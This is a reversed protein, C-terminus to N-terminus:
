RMHYTQADTTSAYTHSLVICNRSTDDKGSPACSKPSLHNLAVHYTHYPHKLGTHLESVVGQRLDSPSDVRVTKQVVLSDFVEITFLVLSLTVTLSDPLVLGKLVFNDTRLSKLNM